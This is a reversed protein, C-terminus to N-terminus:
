PKQVDSLGTCDASLGGNNQRRVTWLKWGSQGSHKKQDAFLLLTKSHTQRNKSSPSDAKGGPSDTTAPRLKELTVAARGPKGGSQGCRQTPSDSSVSGSQGHNLGPSDSGETDSQGLEWELSDPMPQCHQKQTNKNADRRRQMKPTRTLAWYKAQSMKSRTLEHTVLIRAHTRKQTSQELRPGFNRFFNSAGM